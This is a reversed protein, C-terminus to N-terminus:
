HQGLHDPDCDPSYRCRTCIPAVHERREPHEKLGVKVNGVETGDLDHSTPPGYRQHPGNTATEDMM